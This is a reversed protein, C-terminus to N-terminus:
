KYYEKLAVRLFAELVKAARLALDEVEKWRSPSLYSTQQVFSLASKEVGVTIIAGLEEDEEPDVVLENGEALVGLTIAISTSRLAIGADLCACFASNLANSSVVEGLLPITPHVVIRITARPYQRVDILSEMYRKIQLEHSREKPTARSCSSRYLVEIRARDSLDRRSVRTIPGYVCAIYKEDGCGFEASGHAKPITRFQVFPPRLQTAERGDPRM